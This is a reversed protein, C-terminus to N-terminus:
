KKWRTNAAKKAINKRKRPTLSEARAKGGLAGAKVAKPDKPEPEVPPLTIGDRQADRRILEQLGAFAIQNEDKRRAM